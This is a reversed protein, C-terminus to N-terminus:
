PIRCFRKVGYVHPLRPDTQITQCHQAHMHVTRLVVEPDDECFVTQFRHKELLCFRCCYRAGFSEVFGFLTHLGLNDGTVQVVTGHVSHEFILIQLGKTELIKLDNILPELIM